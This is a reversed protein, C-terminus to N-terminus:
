LVMGSLALADPRYPEFEKGCEVCIPHVKGDSSLPPHHVASEEQPDGNNKRHPCRGQATEKSKQQNTLAKMRADFARAEIQQERELKRQTLPDPKRTEEIVTRLIDQLDEKTMGVMPEQDRAM